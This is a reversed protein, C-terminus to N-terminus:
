YVLAYARSVRGATTVTLLNLGPRLGLAAEDGKLKLTAKAASYKVPVAAPRGNIEVTSGAAFGAGKLKLKGGRYSALAVRPAQGGPADCSARAATVRFDDAYWGDSSTSADSGLRLRLRITRGAFATLDARVLSFEGARGGTWAPRSGLPNGIPGGMNLAYVGEVIQSELDAWPGGDSVELVGGDFGREFAFTHWFSFEAAVADDPIAIPESVIWSDGSVGVGSAHWSHTGGHAREATPAWTAGRGALQFTWRREGEVDDEFLVESTTGGARAEVPVDAGGVRAVLGLPAGCPVSADLAVRFGRALRVSAGPALAPAQDAGDLSAVGAGGALSVAVPASAATGANELTLHVLAEGGPEARSVEAAAVRVLPAPREEANYVVLAFDQDVLLGNGPVGDGELSRARVRVRLPGTGAPLWVAEVNNRTDPRGDAVSRDGAFRNGRYLRGGTEVELDLDNESPAASPAGTADTWALTVRVPASASAPVCVWERTEGAADLLETQDVVVRAAGDLARALDLLGWGQRPSPLDDGASALYRTTNLLWAKVLAPSPAEGRERELRAHLLAAAGSVAPAAHSTGSSWTFRTADGAFGAGCVGDGRYDDARSRTGTIHTGPAVLDPKMRGDVVPGGASFFAVEFASDAGSPGV